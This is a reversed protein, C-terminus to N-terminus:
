TKYLWRCPFSGLSGVRTTHVYIIFCISINIKKQETRLPHNLRLIHEKGLSKPGSKHYFHICHFEIIYKISIITPFRLENYSYLLIIRIMDSWVCNFCKLLYNILFTICLDEVYDYWLNMHYFQAMSYFQNNIKFHWKWEFKTKNTKSFFDILYKIYRITYIRKKHRRM